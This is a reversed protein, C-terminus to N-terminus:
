QLRKECDKCYWEQPRVNAVVYLNMHHCHNCIMM